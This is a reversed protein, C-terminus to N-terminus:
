LFRAQLGYGYSNAKELLALIALSFILLFCFRYQKNFMSIQSGFYFSPPAHLLLLLMLVVLFVTWSVLFFASPADTWSCVPLMQFRGGHLSRSLFSTRERDRRSIEVSFTSYALSKANLVDPIQMQWWWMFCAVRVDWRLWRCVNLQFTIRRSWIPSSRRLYVHIKLDQPHLNRNM